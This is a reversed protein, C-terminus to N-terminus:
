CLCHSYPVLLLRINNSHIHSCHDHLHPGWGNLEWNVGRCAKVSGLPSATLMYLPFPLPIPFVDCSGMDLPTVGTPATSHGSSHCPDLNKVVLFLMTKVAQGCWIKGRTGQCNILQVHAFTKTMGRPRWCYRLYHGLM